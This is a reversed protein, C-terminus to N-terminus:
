LDIGTTMGASRAMHLRMQRVGEWLSHVQAGQQLNVRSIKYLETWHKLLSGIARYLPYGPHYIHCPEAKAGNFEIVYFDRGSKLSEISRCRLDYRGYYIGNGAKNLEDFVKLLDEDIYQRGDWFTAGRAHNGYPVLEVEEGIAPVRDLEHGMVEELVPLQLFARENHRILERLSSLGDGTVALFEKVTVSSITGREANPYRYYFVGLEIPYDVYAQLLFEHRNQQIYGGLEAEHHIKKVGVGREGKDPKAILPFSLNAARMAQLAEKLSVLADLRITTPVRSPPLLDLIEKKSDDFLGGYAIGPNVAEFFMPKGSRLALIVWYLYVPLNILHMPWYEWSRLRILRRRWADSLPDSVKNM